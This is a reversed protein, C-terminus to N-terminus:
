GLTSAWDAAVGADYPQTFGCAWAFGGDGAVLLRAGPELLVSEDAVSTLGAAFGEAGGLTIEDGGPGRYWENVTFTVRDGDVAAVTGDFAMERAALAELSYIEACMGLGGPSIPPDTAPPATTPAAVESGGGDGASALLDAGVAVVLVLAAAAALSAPRRWFPVTRVDTVATGSMRIEEELAAAEPSAPDLPPLGAAPDARGLRALLGDADDPGLRRRAYRAIPPACEQWIAHFRAAGESSAVAM